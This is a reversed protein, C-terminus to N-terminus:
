SDKVASEGDVVHPGTPQNLTKLPISEELDKSNGTQWNDTSNSKARVRQTGRNSELLCQLPWLLPNGRHGTYDATRSSYIVKCFNKKIELIEEEKKPIFSGIWISDPVHRHFVSRMMNELVVACQKNEASELSSRILGILAPQANKAHKTRAKVDRLIEKLCVLNSHCNLFTNRFIFIIVPCDIIRKTNYIDRRWVTKQSGNRKERGIEESPNTMAKPRVTLPLETAPGTKCSTPKEDEIDCHNSSLASHPHGNPFSTQGFVGRLFEQLIGADDDEKSKGVDSVLHIKERGGIEALIKQFEKEEEPVTDERPGPEAM